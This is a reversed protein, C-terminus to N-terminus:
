SDVSSPHAFVPLCQMDLVEPMCAIFLICVSCYCHMGVVQRNKFGQKTAFLGNIEIVDESSDYSCQSAPQGSVTTFLIGSESEIKM